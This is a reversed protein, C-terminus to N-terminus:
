PPMRSADSHSRRARLSLSSLSLRKKKGPTRPPPTANEQVIEETCELYMKKPCFLPM